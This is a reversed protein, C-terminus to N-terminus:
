PSTPFGDVGADGLQRALERVRADAFFAIRQRTLAPGLGSGSWASTDREALATWSGGEEGGGIGRLWDRFPRARAATLRKARAAGVIATLREPPLAAWGVLDDVEDADLLRAWTGRDIGQLRLARGLWAMRALLQGRCGPTDDFCSLAHYTGADPPVALQRAPARADVAHLQPITLGSLKVVVRDGAAVDADRWRAVSGLSLRRVTRDGLHVPELILMPTVKGTRGVTFAVARVTALARDPPYKWAVAWAPPEARWRAWSPRADHRIVIGDTAFPLSAHYWHDRWRAVDDADDVPQWLTTSEGFGLRALHEIREAANVPGDPWDWVFLGVRAATTADLQKRLLAGAVAARAGMGGDHSQRHADRRWVLEGHLVLRAPAGALHKPIADIRQAPRWWDVGSTGDGRGTVATLAGQEYVLTVAVGDAKPQVLFRTQGSRAMWQAVAAEDPLKKLGTQVIAHPSGGAARALADPEEVHADPFCRQWQRFRALSQDYVADVVPSTGDRHYALNWAALTAQLTTLEDRARTTSWAPCVAHAVGPFLVLMFLIRGVM